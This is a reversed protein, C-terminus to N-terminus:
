NALTIQGTYNFDAKFVREEGVSSVSINPPTQQPYGTGVTSGWTSGLESLVLEQLVEIADLCANYNAGETDVERVYSINVSFLLSIKSGMLYVIARSVRFAFFNIEQNYRLKTLENWSDEALDHEIVVDTIDLIDAHSWVASRWAARIAESRTLAM